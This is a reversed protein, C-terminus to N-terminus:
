IIILFVTLVEGDGLSIQDERGGTQDRKENQTATKATQKTLLPPRLPPLLKQHTTPSRRLFHEEPSRPPRPRHAHPATTSTPRIKTGTMVVMQMVVM